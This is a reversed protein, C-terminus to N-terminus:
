VDTNSVKTIGNNNGKRLNELVKNLDNTSGVFIATNNAAAPQDTTDKKESATDLAVKKKHLDMLKHNIDAVDKMLGSVVEFARPHESEKAVDLAHNLADQGQQLLGYLNARIREYDNEIMNDSSPILTADYTVVNTRKIPEVDFVDSLKDDTNM